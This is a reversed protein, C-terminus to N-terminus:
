VEVNESDDIKIVSARYWLEDASFQAVCAQNQQLERANQVSPSNAIDGNNLVQSIM